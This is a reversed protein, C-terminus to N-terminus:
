FPYGHVCVSLLSLLIALISEMINNRLTKGNDPNPWFSLGNVDLLVSRKIDRGTVELDKVLDNLM